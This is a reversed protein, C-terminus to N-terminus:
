NGHGYFTSWDFERQIYEDAKREDKPDNNWPEPKVDLIRDLLDDPIPEGSRWCHWIMICDPDTLKNESVWVFAYATHWENEDYECSKSLNVSKASGWTGSCRRGHMSEIVEVADTLDLEVLNCPATAYRGVYQAAKKLNGVHRIDVIPSGHSIARWLESIRRQDAYSGEVLCHLHPHWCGDTNSKKLQFFWIGGTVVSRFWPDKRLRKFYAYLLDIQGSLSGKSHELTLTLFRAHKKTKLWTAVNATAITQKAKACIPCWRLNCCQSSVRVEKTIKNVVFYAASKCRILKRYRAQGTIDDWLRYAAEIHKARKVQGALLFQRYSSGLIEQVTTQLPHVSAAYPDYIPEPEIIPNPDSEAEEQYWVNIM